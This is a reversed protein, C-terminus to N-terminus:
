SGGLGHDRIIRGLTENVSLLDFFHFLRHASPSPRQFDLPSGAFKSKIPMDNQFVLETRIKILFDAVFKRVREPQRLWSDLLFEAFADCNQICYTLIKLTEEPRLVSPEMVVEFAYKSRNFIVLKPVSKM